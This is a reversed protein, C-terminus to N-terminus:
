KVINDSTEHQVRSLSRKGWISRQKFNLTHKSESLRAFLISISKKWIISEM